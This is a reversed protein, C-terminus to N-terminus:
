MSWITDVFTSYKKFNYKVCELEAFISQKKIEFVGFDIQLIRYNKKFINRVSWSWRCIHHTDHKTEGAIIAIIIYFSLLRRLM